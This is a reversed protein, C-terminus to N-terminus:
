NVSAINTSIDQNYALVVEAFTNNKAQLSAKYVEWAITAAIVLYTPHQSIQTWTQGTKTKVSLNPPSIKKKAQKGSGPNNNVLHM